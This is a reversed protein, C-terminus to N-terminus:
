AAAWARAWPSQDAATCGCVTAHNNTLLQYIFIQLVLRRRSIWNSPLPPPASKQRCWTPRQRPSLLLLRHHMPQYTVQRIADGQVGAARAKILGHIARQRCCTAEQCWTGSGGGSATRRHIISDNSSSRLLASSQQRCTARQIRSKQTTDSAKRASIERQILSCSVRSM